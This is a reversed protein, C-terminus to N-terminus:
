KMYDALSTPLYFTDNKDVYVIVSNLRIEEQGKRGSKVINTFPSITLQKNKNKKNKVILTPSAKEDAAPIIECTYDTFVDTHRAFNKDNLEDLKGTLGLTACLYHNLEVNTLRGLPLSARDPHYAALFVEEGTHGGTTFGFCTKSTMLKSM